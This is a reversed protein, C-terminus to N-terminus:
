VHAAIQESITDVVQAIRKAAGEIGSWQPLKNASGRGIRLGDVIAQTLQGPTTSNADLAINSKIRSIYVDDPWNRGNSISISPIGLSAAEFVTVRNGKTIVLDCASFLREIKWNQAEVVIDTRQSLNSSIAKYDRGALWILKKSGFPLQDWASLLVNYMPVAAEDYNGPQCLLVVDEDAIGLERRIDARTSCCELRRIAPGVYQIKKRLYLPETFLGPDGIFIIEIAAKLPQTWHSSPDMFYDTIFISPIGFVESAILAQCEEHAVVLRPKVHGILRLQKVLADWPDPDDPMQLNIVDYGCSEFTEAGTSYSVYVIDVNTRLAQLKRGIEIDPIAHGRGRGRSFYLIGFSDQTFLSSAENTEDKGPEANRSTQSTSEVMISERQTMSPATNANSPWKPFEVQMINRDVRYDRWGLAMSRRCLLTLVKDSLLSSNRNSIAHRVDPLIDRFVTNLWAVVYNRMNALTYHAPPDLNYIEGLVRHGGGYRYFQLLLGRLTTRHLHVVEAKAIFILNWGCGLARWCFDADGGSRMQHRFLGIDNFIQRRVALNATQAYPRFPHSLTHHQDLLQRNYSYKEVLSNGKNSVIGGAVLGVKVDAFSMALLALWNLCPRCDADTFVLLDGRAIQVGKNRAAYSTHVTTETLISICPYERSFNIKYINLKELTDDSSGNDIVIIEYSDASYSQEVLLDLLPKVHLAGNRIPIIVSIFPQIIM